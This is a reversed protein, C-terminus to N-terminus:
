EHEGAKGDVIDQAYALGDVVGHKYIIETSKACTPAINDIRAHGIKRIIEDKEAKIREIEAQQEKLLELANNLIDYLKYDVTDQEPRNQLLDKGYEIDNITKKLKDM